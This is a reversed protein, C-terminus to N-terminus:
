GSPLVLVVKLLIRLLLLMVQKKEYIWNPIQRAQFTKSFSCLATGLAIRSSGKAAEDDFAIMAVIIAM